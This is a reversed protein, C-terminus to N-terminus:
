WWFIVATKCVTSVYESESIFVMPDLQNIKKDILRTHRLCEWSLLQLPFIYPYVTRHQCNYADPMVRMITSFSSPRLSLFAFIDVLLRNGFGGLGNKM